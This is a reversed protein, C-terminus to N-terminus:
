QHVSAKWVIKAMRVPIAANGAIVRIRKYTSANKAVHYLVTTALRVPMALGTATAIGNTAMRRDPCNDYQDPVTDGDKDSM